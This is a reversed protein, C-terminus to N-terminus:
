AMEMMVATRDGPARAALMLGLGLGLQVALDHVYLHDLLSHVGLAALVGVLGLGLAAELAARPRLCARLALAWASCYFLLYGALGLLGAEALLNLYLNHAHGLPDKWRPLRFRDYVAAFHGPGQGLWPREAWMALAAQWHALREIKAFDADTVEADRVDVIWGGGQTSSALRDVVSRPLRELGGALLGALVLCLGLWLALLGRRRAPVGPSRSALTGLGRAQSRAVQYGGNASGGDRSGRDSSGGDRSGIAGALAAGTMAAGAAAAGLWAGRSWSLLLGALALAGAVAGWAIVAWGPGAARRDGVRGLGLLRAALPALALPWLQNMYGGFPNPQGFHGHARYIRGGLVAYAEPGERLLAGRIGWAAELAGAALLLVFVATLDRDGARRQGDGAGGGLRAALWLALGLSAWRALEQLVLQAEPARWGALVLAALFCALPLLLPWARGWAPLRGGTLARLLALASALILMPLAPTLRAAGLPLALLGGFPVAWAALVLALPPWLLLAALLAAPALAALPLFALLAVLALWLAAGAPDPTRPLSLTWSLTRTM